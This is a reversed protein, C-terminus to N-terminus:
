NINNKRKKNFTLPKFFLCKIIQFIGVIIFLVPLVIWIGLSKITELFSSTTGNQFLMFGVGIILFTFGFYLGMIDIKIKDFFGKIYLVGLIFAISGLTFFGGFYILANKSNTGVLIADKPNSPNYKVKRISNKEPISGVGYDTSVTYKMGDVEYVYILKYTEGKNNKSSNSPNYFEYNVLYGNTIIYNKTMRNLKYTDKIGIFLCFVGSLLIVIVLLSSVIIKFNFTLNKNKFLTKSEIELFFKRIIYIGAIWFPITILLTWYNNEKIVLYSWLILFCFWFALFSKAFLKRFINAYKKKNILFCVNKGLSFLGCTIFPIIMIKAIGSNHFFILFLVLVIITSRIIRGILVNRNKM